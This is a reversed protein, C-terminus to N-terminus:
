FSNMIHQGTDALRSPFFLHFLANIIICNLEATFFHNDQDLSERELQFLFFYM